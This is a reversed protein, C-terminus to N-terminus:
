VHGQLVCACEYSSLTYIRKMEKARVTSPCQGERCQGDGSAVCGASASVSARAGRGGRGPVGRRAPAGGGPDRGLVTPRSGRAGTLEVTPRPAPTLRGTSNALSAAPRHSARRPVATFQRLGHRGSPSCLLLTGGSPRLLARVARALVAVCGSSYVLDAGLLVQFTGHAAVLEAPESSWNLSAVDVQCCTRVAPPRCM